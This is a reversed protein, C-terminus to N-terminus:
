ELSSSIMLWAFITTVAHGCVPVVVYVIYPIRAVNAGIFSQIIPFPLWRQFVKIDPLRAHSMPLVIGSVFTVVISIFIIHKPWSAYLKQYHKLAQAKPAITQLEIRAKQFYDLIKSVVANYDPLGVSENDKLFRINRETRILLEEKEVSDPLKKAAEFAAIEDRLSKAQRELVERPPLKRSQRFAEVRHLLEGRYEDLNQLISLDNHIDEQWKIYSAVSQSRAVAGTIWNATFGTFPYHSVLAALGTLITQGSEALPPCSTAPLCSNGTATQLVLYIIERRTDDNETDFKTDKKNFLMHIRYDPPQLLVIGPQKELIEQFVSLTKDGLISVVIGLAAISIALITANIGAIALPNSQELTIGRSKVSCLSHIQPTLTLFGHHDSYLRDFERLASLM